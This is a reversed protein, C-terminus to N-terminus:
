GTCFNSPNAPIMKMSEITIEAGQSVKLPILSIAASFLNNLEANLYGAAAAFVYEAGYKLWLASGAALVPGSSGFNIADSALSLSL